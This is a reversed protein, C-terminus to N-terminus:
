EIDCCLNYPLEQEPIGVVVLVSSMHMHTLATRLMKTFYTQLRYDFEVLLTIQCVGLCTFHQFYCLLILLFQKM